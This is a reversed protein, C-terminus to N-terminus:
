DESEGSPRYYITNVDRLKRRHALVREIGLTSPVIKALGYLSFTPAQDFETIDLNDIVRRIMHYPTIVLRKAERRSIGYKLALEGIITEVEPQLSPEIIKKNHRELIKELTAQRNIKDVDELDFKSNVREIDSLLSKVSDTNLKGLNTQVEESYKHKGM